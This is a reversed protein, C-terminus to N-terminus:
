SIVKSSRHTRAKPEVNPGNHFKRPYNRNDSKNVQKEYQSQKNKVRLHEMM